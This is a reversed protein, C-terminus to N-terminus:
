SQVENPQAAGTIKKHADRVVQCENRLGYHELVPVISQGLMTKLNPTLRDATLMLLASLWARELDARRANARDLALKQGSVAAAIVEQMFDPDAAVAERVSAAVRFRAEPPLREM